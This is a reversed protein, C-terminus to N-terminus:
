AGLTNPCENSNNRQTRKNNINSKTDHQRKCQCQRKTNKTDYANAIRHINKITEISECRTNRQHCKSHNEEDRIIRKHMHMAQKQTARNRSKKHAIKWM